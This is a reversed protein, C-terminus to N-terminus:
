EERYIPFYFPLSMIDKTRNKFFILSRYGSPDFNGDMDTADISSDSYSLAIEKDQCQVINLFKGNPLGFCAGAATQPSYWGIQKVSYPEHPEYQYAADIKFSVDKGPGEANRVIIRSGKGDAECDIQPKEGYCPFVVTTDQRPKLGDGPLATLKEFNSTEPKPLTKLFTYLPIVLIRIIRNEKDEIGFLVVPINKSIGFKTTSVYNEKVTYKMRMALCPNHATLLFVLFHNGAKRMALGRVDTALTLGSGGLEYVDFAEIKKTYGVNVECDEYKKFNYEERFKYAKPGFYTDSIHLGHADLKYSFLDTTPFVIIEDKTIEIPESPEAIKSLREVKVRNCSVTTFSVIVLMIALIYNGKKM